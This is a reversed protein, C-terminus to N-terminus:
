HDPSGQKRAVADALAEYQDTAIFDVGAEISAHWRELAAAATGFNYGASWGQDASKEPAHGNLTYFRVWVGRTHATRVLEELREREQVLWTAALPQPQGEVVRWPNNWWRRYNDIPEPFGDEATQVAGFLRIPEGVNKSDHFSHQQEDNSGTLVLLPGLHLPAIRDISVTREAVTLFRDYRALVREVEQHHATSNDKFDLNLVLVPWRRPDGGEWERELLAAVRAFFSEDLTPEEGTFPEGHSVISRAGEDSDLWCLDQEIAVPLGVSLARDVREIFRGDYPYANHADVMVRGAHPTTRWASALEAMLATHDSQVFDAGAALAELIRSRGDGEGLTNVFALRGQRHVEVVLDPAFNRWDINVIPPDLAEVLRDLGGPGDPLSPRVSIGPELAMLREVDTWDRAFVTSGEVMELDRLLTVVAEPEAAKLDLDPHIRGKMVELARRLTPVGQDAFGDGFWSGADLRALEAVDFQEVRGTGDTTRDVTADHMLVLVGDRSTRVDIEARSAGHEIAAELAALTNEPALTVSGRHAVSEPGPWTYIPRGAEHVSLLRHRARDFAASLRTGSSELRGVLYVSGPRLDSSELEFRSGIEEEVRALAAAELEPDVPVGRPQTWLLCLACVWM